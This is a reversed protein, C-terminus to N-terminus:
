SVTKLHFLTLDNGTQLLFHARRGRWPLLLLARVKTAVSLPFRQNKTKPSLFFSRAFTLVLSSSPNRVIAASKDPNM